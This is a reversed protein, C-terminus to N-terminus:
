IGFVIGHTVLDLKPADLDTVFHGPRKRDNVAAPRSRVSHPVSIRERKQVRTLKM